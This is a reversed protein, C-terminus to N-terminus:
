KRTGGRGAEAEEFERECGLKETRWRCTLSASRPARRAQRGLTYKDLLKAPRPGQGKSQLCGMPAPRQSCPRASWKGRM